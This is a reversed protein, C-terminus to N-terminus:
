VPLWAPAGVELDKVFERAFGRAAFPAYICEAAPCPALLLWHMPQCCSHSAPATRFPRAVMRGSRLPSPGQLSLPQGPPQALGNGSAALIGAVAPM